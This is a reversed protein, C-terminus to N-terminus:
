HVAKELQGIAKSVAQPSIGQLVAAQQFSGTDAAKIFNQISKFRDM